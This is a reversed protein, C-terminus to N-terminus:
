ENKTQTLEDIKVKNRHKSGKMHSNYFMPSFFPQDCNPCYYKSKSREEKTSHMTMVHMKMNWSVPTEYDCNENKCKHIKPGGGRLHKESSLHELWFSNYNCKFLCITCTYKYNDM